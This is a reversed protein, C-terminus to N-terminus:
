IYSGHVHVITPSHPFAPTPLISHLSPSFHSFHLLMILLYIYIKFLLSYPPPPCSHYYRSDKKLFSPVDGLFMDLFSSLSSKEKFNVIHIDINQPGQPWQNIIVQKTVVVKHTSGMWESDRQRMIKPYLEVAETLYKIKWLQTGM